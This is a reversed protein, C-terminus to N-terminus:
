AGVVAGDIVGTLHHILNTMQAVVDQKVGCPDAVLLKNRHHGIARRQQQVQVLVIRTDQDRLRNVFLLGTEGLGRLDVLFVAM